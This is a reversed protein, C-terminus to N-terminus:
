QFPRNQRVGGRGAGPLLSGLVGLLFGLPVTVLAPNELPFVAFDAHPLLATPSGSVAPSLATLSLCTLLGGYISWIAGRTTFRKWYLGYLLAPLISSAAIAFALGVLVSIRLNQAFLSLTTAAVGILVIAAQAVFLETREQAGGRKLVAAYMDHAVATAATLTLGAVVALITVFAVCAIVTLLLPGGLDRALLLVATNGSPNDATISSPGVIGAAGFGLVVAVLGLVCALVTAWRATGRAARADAVTSFRTLVHPLGAAGLLFALQTSLSDLGGATGLAGRGSPALFRVGLGSSSAASSLMALPDGHYRSLVGLALAIGAGVLLVAKVSQVLTAARMGGVMVYLVMLLGLVAVLARQAGPGTLGLVSAALAGAGDLQAILYLLSVVVVATGAARHVPRARFRRALFAGFTFGGARHFPEAVLLLIVAWCVVPALMYPIGDYGSLAILGPNGLLTAASMYAGFLAIGNRAGSLRRDGLYFDATTGKDAAAWLALFMTCAVCVAFIILVPYSNQVNVVTQNM